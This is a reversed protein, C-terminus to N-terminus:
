VFKVFPMRVKIKQQNCSNADAITKQLHLIVIFVQFLGCNVKM